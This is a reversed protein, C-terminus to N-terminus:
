GASKAQAGPRTAMFEELSEGRMQAGMQLLTVGLAGAVKLIIYINGGHRIMGAWDRRRVMEQEEATLGMAQMYASEDSLFAARAEPSVMSMAFKNLRYGRRSREGTFPYTGTIPRNGGCEIAPTKVGEANCVRERCAVFIERDSVFDKWEIFSQALISASWPLRFSRLQAHM